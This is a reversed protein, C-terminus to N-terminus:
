KGAAAKKRLVVQQTKYASEEAMKVLDLITDSLSLLNLGGELNFGLTRTTKINVFISNSTNFSLMNAKQGGTNKVYTTEGTKYIEKLAYALSRMDITSLMLTEGKDDEAYPLIGFFFIGRTVSKESEVKAKIVLASKSDTLSFQGVHFEAM